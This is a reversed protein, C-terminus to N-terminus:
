EPLFWDTLPKSHLVGSMMLPLLDGAGM